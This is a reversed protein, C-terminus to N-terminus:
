AVAAADDFRRLHSGMSSRRKSTRGNVPAGVDQVQDEIEELKKMIEDVKSDLTAKEAAEEKKKHAM